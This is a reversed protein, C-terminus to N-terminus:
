MGSLVIRALHGGAAAARWRVRLAGDHVCARLARLVCRNVRAGAYMRSPPLAGTTVAACLPQASSHGFGVHHGNFFAWNSTTYYCGRPYTPASEVFNPGVTKGAAVGATRCAAETEIRLTGAPCTNSSMAGSV